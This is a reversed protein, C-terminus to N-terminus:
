LYAGGHHHNQGLLNEKRPQLHNVHKNRTMKSGGMHLIGSHNRLLNQSGSIYGGRKFLLKGRNMMTPRLNFKMRSIKTYMIQTRPDGVYKPFIM